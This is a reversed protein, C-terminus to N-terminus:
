AERTRKRKRDAKEWVIMVEGMDTREEETLRKVIEEEIYTM